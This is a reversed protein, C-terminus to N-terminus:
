ESRVPAPVNGKVSGSLDYALRNEIEVIESGVYMKVDMQQFLSDDAREAVKPDFGGAQRAFRTYPYIRM